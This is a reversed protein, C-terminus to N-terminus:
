RPTPEFWEPKVIWHYDKGAITVQIGEGDPDLQGILCLKKGRDLIMVKNKPQGEALKAFQEWREPAVFKKADALRVLTAGRMLVKGALQTAHEPKWAPDQWIKPAYLQVLMALPVVPSLFVGSSEAPVSVGNAGVPHLYVNCQTAALGDRTVWGFETTLGRFGESDQVVLWRLSEQEFRSRDNAARSRYSRISVPAYDRTVQMIRSMPDYVVELYQFLHPLGDHFPIVRRTVFGKDSEDRYRLEDFSDFQFLQQLGKPFNPAQGRKWSKDSERRLSEKMEDATFPYRIQLALLLNTTKQYILEYYESVKIQGHIRVTVTRRDSKSVCQWEKTSSGKFHNLVFSVDRDIIKKLDPDQLALGKALCALTTVIIM